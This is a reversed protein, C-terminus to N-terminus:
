VPELVLCANHGGFGYSFKLALAPRAERPANAVVDVDCEPDPEEYNITPTLRGERLSLALAATEMPGSGGIAHGTMSKLGTVAVDPLRAGFVKRFALSETRDNAVTSTAHASVHEVEDASRGARALAARALAVIRDGSEDPQLMSLADCNAAYGTVAAYGRAGRARAHSERELVLVAAGEGLVFGDRLRDFPRSAREPADNRTSLTRLRDFGVLSFADHDGAAGEAGGAFAVDADGDRVARWAAGLAMTGAACATSPAACEGRAGVRIAVQGAPANPILMPLAYRKLGRKSRERAWRGHAAEFTSLGGIGTGIATIAREPDAGSLIWGGRDGNARVADLGADGMAELAAAVAFQSTRDLLSADTSPIGCSAPDFGAVPCGIKTSLDTDRVWTADLRVAGSRGSLCGDWFAQRGVGIPSVVGIGTILVRESGL